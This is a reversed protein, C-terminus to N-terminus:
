VAPVCAASSTLAEHNSRACRTSTILPWKRSERICYRTSPIVIHSCGTSPTIRIWGSPWIAISCPKVMVMTSWSSPLSRGKRIPVLSDRAHKGEMLRTLEAITPAEVLVTLPLTIGFLNEIRAFLDVALLSTGGLDFYNDRVGVTELRLLDAWLENLRREIETSPPSPPQGLSPRERRKRGQSDLQLLVQDPGHLISAIREYPPVRRSPFGATLSPSSPGPDDAVQAKDGNSSPATTAAFEAPIRYM